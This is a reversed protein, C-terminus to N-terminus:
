RNSRNSDDAGGGAEEQEFTLDLLAPFMLQGTLQNGVLAQGQPHEFLESNAQEAPPRQFCPSLLGLGVELWGLLLM